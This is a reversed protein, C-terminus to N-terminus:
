GAPDGLAPPPSPCLICKIYHSCGSFDVLYAYLYTEPLNFLTNLNHFRQLDDRQIFKSLYFGWVEARTPFTPDYTYRLIEHPYGICVLRELLLKFALTEYAPSNYVALTYDMDFGCGIKGM